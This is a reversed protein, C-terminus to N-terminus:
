QYNGPMASILYTGHEERQKTREQSLEQSGMLM